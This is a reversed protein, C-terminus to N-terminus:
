MSRALREAHGSVNTLRADVFLGNRNEMLAYGIFSSSPKWAQDRAISGLTRIPPRLTPRTAGSRAASTSRKTADPYHRLSTAMRAREQAQLEEPEGLDEVLTGARGLLARRVSAEPDRGQSRSHVHPVPCCDGGGFAAGPEELVCFPELGSRRYRARCVLPVASRVGAAGDAPRESRVTYFAQLLLARLLKEPAISPRGLPAYMAAFAGSLASLAVDVITRIARLSIIRRCWRRELDVYSFLSGSRQDSGRM